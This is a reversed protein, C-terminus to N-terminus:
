AAKGGQIVRPKAPVPQAPAPIVGGAQLSQAADGVQQGLGAAVSAQEAAKEVAKQAVMKALEADIEEATKRWDAPGGAGRIADQLMKDMRIPAVRGTAAMAAEAEAGMQVVGLTEQFQSVLIRTSAEQMPNKFTWTFDAKSLDDPMERFDYRGMNRLRAFTMDLIRTNYEQEMPEFLPLLNRIHEEVRARTETATMGSTVEPLALKNIFFAGEMMLRLDARMAFGTKMDGAIQIPMFADKLSSDPGVDAWTLAGAQLNADRIAESNAIAPPDVSKEGAELLIRAMQQAMRGDPLANFTAPSYAYQSGSVTAWRPVAYPFIVDGDERIMHGNDADVYCISFPLKRKSKDRLVTDYEDCPMAIVRINFEKGPEKEAATRVSKHLKKEGFRRVLQRATMKDKRHLHDIVDIANELWACDRLHHSKYHMHDRDPAEMCSIVTQGFTIFDHDGEKSARVFQAKAFYMHSRTTATLYELYQSIEPLVNLDEDLTSAAFWPQGRPRLMSSIANGLEQRVHASHADLMNAAYDRGEIHNTTFTARMPYFHEAIEQFLSNLPDKKAFLRDGLDLLEKARADGAM